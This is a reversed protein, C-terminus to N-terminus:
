FNGYIYAETKNKPFPPLYDIYSLKNNLKEKSFYRVPILKDVKEFQLVAMWLAAM